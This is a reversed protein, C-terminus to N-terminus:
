IDWFFSLLYKFIDYPIFFNDQTHPHNQLKLLEPMFSSYFPFNSDLYM